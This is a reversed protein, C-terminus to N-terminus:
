RVTLEPLSSAGEHPALLQSASADLARDLARLFKRVRRPHTGWGFGPKRGQSLLDVRTQADGDLRILIEMDSTGGFLLPRVGIRLRGRLDDAEILEWRQTTSVM